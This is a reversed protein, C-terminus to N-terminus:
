GLLGIGIKEVESIYRILCNLWIGTHVKWARL